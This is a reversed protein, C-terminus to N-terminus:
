FEAVKGWAGTKLREPRYPRPDVIPATGTIIDAMLHGAGPILWGIAPALAAIPTFPVAAASTPTDPATTETKAM